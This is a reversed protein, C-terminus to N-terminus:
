IIIYQSNSKLFLKQSHLPRLKQYDIFSACQMKIVTTKSTLWIALFELMREAKVMM